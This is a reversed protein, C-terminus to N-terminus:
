KYCAAKSLVIAATVVGRQEGDPFLRSLATSYTQDGEVQVKPEHSEVLSEALQKQKGDLVKPQVDLVGLSGGGESNTCAGVAMIALLAACRRVATHRCLQYNLM